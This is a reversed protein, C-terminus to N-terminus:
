FKQQEEEARKERAEKEEWTEDDQYYAKQLVRESVLAVIFAVVIGIVCLVLVGKPTSFLWDIREM